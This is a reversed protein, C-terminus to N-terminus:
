ITKTLFDKTFKQVDTNVILKLDNDSLNNIKKSVLTLNLYTSTKKSITNKKLKIMYYFFLKKINDTAIQKSNLMYLDYDNINLLFRKHKKALHKKYRKISTEIEAIQFNLSDLYNSYIYTKNINQKQAETPLKLGEAILEKYIIPYDNKFENHLKFYDKQAELDNYNIYIYRHKLLLNKVRKLKHIKLPLIELYQKNLRYTRYNIYKALLSINLIPYSLRKDLEISILKNVKFNHNKLKM